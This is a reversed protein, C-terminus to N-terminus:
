SEAIAAKAAAKPSVGDEFASGFDYDALDMVGVGVLASVHADVKKMFAYFKTDGGAYDLLRDVKARWM